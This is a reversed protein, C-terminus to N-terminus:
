KKTGWNWKLEGKCRPLAIQFFVFILAGMGLLFQLVEKKEDGEPEFFGIIKGWGLMALILLLTMLWGEWSIPEFGYGYSKPKFWYKKESELGSVIGKM